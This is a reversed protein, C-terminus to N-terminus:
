FGLQTSPFLILTLSWFFEVPRQKLVEQAHLMAVEGDVQIVFRRQFDGIDIVRQQEVM